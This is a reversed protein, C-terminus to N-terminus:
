RAEAPVGRQSFQERCIRRTQQAPQPRSRATHARVASPRGNHPDQLRCRTGHVPHPLVRVMAARSGARGSCCTSGCAGPRTGARCRTRSWRAGRGDRGTCGTRTGGAGGRGATGRDRRGEGARRPSRGRAPRWRGREGQHVPQGAARGGRRDEGLDAAGALRGPVAREVAVQGATGGAVQAGDEHGSADQGGPVLAEGVEFPPGPVGGCLDAIGGLPPDDAAERGPMVQPPEAALGPPVGDGGPLGAVRSVLDPRRGPQDAPQSAGAGGQGGASLAVDVGPEGGPCGAAVVRAGEHGPGGCAAVGAAQVYGRAGAAVQYGLDFVVVPPCQGAAEEVAVAM